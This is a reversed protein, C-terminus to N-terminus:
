GQYNQLTEVLVKGLLEGAYVAEDMTNGDTGMEILLSNHSKHMNYKRACFFLPRMLGPFSNEATKQIQLAFRLNQMWDPFGTVNGEECGSIIMIQASKKGNIVATPKVKTGNEYQIADRHIDLLVTLTPYQKLYEDIMASTRDYAGNYSPYDYQKTVHIVGIGAAQLQEVIKKGVAVMNHSEELSRSTYDKPYWGYDGDLYSETTHTHYILVYPDQNKKIKLDPGEELLKKIDATYSSAKNQVWINEYGIYGSGGGKFQKEQVDGGKEGESPMKTQQVEPTEVAQTEEPPPSAPQTEEPATTVPPLSEGPAEELEEQSMYSHSLYERGGEPASLGAALFAAGELKPLMSPLTKLLMFGAVFLAFFAFSRKTAKMIM